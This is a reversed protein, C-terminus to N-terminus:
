ILLNLNPIQRLRRTSQFDCPTARDRLFFSMSFQNKNLLFAKIETLAKLMLDKIRIKESDSFKIKTATIFCTFLQGNQFRKLTKALKVELGNECGCRTM